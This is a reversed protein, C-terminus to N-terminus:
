PTKRKAGSNISRKQAKKRDVWRGWGADVLDETIVLDRFRLMEALKTDLAWEIWGYSRLISTIAFWVIASIAGAACGVLVQKPTHYSLYIRSLAVAAACLCAVISLLGRQWIPFPTHTLSPSPAHRILLFLTLSVSFFAVFQAHSSPMGYGKGYMQRPREEKIWRKLLFNVAECSMQGAFM